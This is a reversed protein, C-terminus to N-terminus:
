ASVHRLVRKAFMADVDMVGNDYKIVDLLYPAFSLDGMAVLLASGASVRLEANSKENAIELFEATTEWSDLDDMSAYLSQLFTFGWRDQILTLSEEVLSKMITQIARLKPHSTGDAIARAVAITEDATLTIGNDALLRKFQSLLVRMLDSFPADGLKQDPSPPLTM